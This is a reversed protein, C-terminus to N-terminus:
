RHLALSLYRELKRMRQTKTFGVECDKAKKLLEIDRLVLPSKSQIAFSWDNEVLIEICQKTLQYKRELPQYADCVGSIWVEGKKNKKVEKNVM